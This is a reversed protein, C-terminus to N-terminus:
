CSYKYLVYTMCAMIFITLLMKGIWYNLTNDNSSTVKTDMSEIKTIEKPQVIDTLEQEEPPIEYTQIDESM